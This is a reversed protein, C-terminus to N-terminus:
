GNTKGDEKDETKFKRKNKDKKKEKNHGYDIVTIQSGFCSLLVRMRRFVDSVNVLPSDSGRCCRTAMRFRTTTWSVRGRIM